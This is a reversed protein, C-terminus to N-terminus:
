KLGYDKIKRYLTRESTGLLLAAKKRNGESDKLAKAIAQKEAEEMTLPKSEIPLDEKVEQVETTETSYTGTTPHRDSDTLDIVTTWQEERNIDVPAATDISLRKKLEIIDKRMDFLVKYLLEREDMFRDGHEKMWDARALGTENKPLHNALITGTINSTNATVVLSEAFNKLQRINGPWYYNVLMMKAEDNLTPTPKHYLAACDIAFKRFLMLIDEKRERLAPIHIEIGNLRYYLDERFRGESVAKQLDVNTAAVIRVDTKQVVSSGMKVFEGTELVRLLQVQTELPLEAVEDLFLTGGNAEEFYGKRDSTADTYAGKVHGFLESNITSQSIAGCNVPFYKNHKRKSRSHIIKPFVEKGVGNEGTILICMDTAAVQAALEIDRLLAPDNGIINYNNKISIIEERTM